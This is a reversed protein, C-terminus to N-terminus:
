FELLNLYAVDHRVANVNMGRLQAVSRYSCNDRMTVLEKIWGDGLRNQLRHMEEEIDLAIRSTSCSFISVIEQPLNSRTFVAGGEGSCHEILRHIIRTTSGIYYSEELTQFHECRLIYVWAKPIM